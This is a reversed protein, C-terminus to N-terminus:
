VGFLCVFLCVLKGLKMITHCNRSTDEFRLASCFDDPAMLGPLVDDFFTFDPMVDDLAILGPLVGDFSTFDPLVDDLAILGPFVGDFFTFDALVDDPALWDTYLPLELRIKEETHGSYLTMSIKLTNLNFTLSNNKLDTYVIVDFPRLYNWCVLTCRASM